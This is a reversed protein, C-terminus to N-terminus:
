WYGRENVTSVCPMPDLRITALRTSILDSLAGKNLGGHAIGLQEAKAVQNAGPAGKRWQSGRRVLVAAESAAYQEGWSMAMDLDVDRQLFEGGARNRVRAVAYRGPDAEPALFILADGASLFWVGRATRLWAQRSAGFLDVIESVLPGDAGPDDRRRGGGAGPDLLGLLDIEEDPEYCELEKELQEVREAGGLDVVSALRHRGTVGVVDIILADRKGPHPRLGRGAMQVYLAASSTPRAIVVASIWPADWGETLVACNCVVQVDGRAHDALIRRREATPLSGDLGVAPIGEANLAEAMEYAMAVTPAFLVGARDKAHEVYARAVAAPALAAHMAESLARDQYDGGTRKVRALDLGDVKVRIGKVNVLYGERIMPVIDRRYVVEQWVQGLAVRDARGLTASVGLAYAGTMPDEDFCGLDRLISMYTNAVGHHAEDVIVLRFGAAALEARRAERTLSQVSAVVVDRGRYERREAKYIGVRLDPAAARVTRAAQEILEDRHALILTRVGLSHMDAALGAFTVTKGAGTPLVAAPRRVGRGWARRVSLVCARQYDRLALVSM